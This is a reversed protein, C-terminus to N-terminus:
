KSLKRAAKSPLFLPQFAYFTSPYFSILPKFRLLFRIKGTIKLPRIERHSLIQRRFNEVFTSEVRTLFLRCPKLPFKYGWPTYPPPPTHKPPYLGPPGNVSCVPRMGSLNPQSAAPYESENKWQARPTPFSRCDAKLLWVREAQPKHNRPKLFRSVEVGSLVPEAGGTPM